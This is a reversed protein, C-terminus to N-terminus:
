FLIGYQVTLSYCDFANQLIIAGPTSVNELFTFNQMSKWRDDASSRQFFGPKKEFAGLKDYYILGCKRKGGIVCRHVAVLWSSQNWSRM